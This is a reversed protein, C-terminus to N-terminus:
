PTSNGDTKDESKGIRYSDFMGIMWCGMLVYTAINLTSFASDAPTASVLAMITQFDAPVAGSLIKDVVVSARQMVDRVIVIFSILALGLLLTGPVYRKLFFHGAGPAVVASLLLAKDAKKM